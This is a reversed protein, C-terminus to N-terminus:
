YDSGTRRSRRGGMESANLFNLPENGNLFLKLKSIIMNAAATDNDMAQRLDNIIVDKPNENIQQYFTNLNNM